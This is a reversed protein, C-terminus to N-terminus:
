RKAPGYAGRDFLINATQLTAIGNRTLADRLAAADPTDTLLPTLKGPLDHRFLKPTNGFPIMVVNGGSDMYSLEGERQMIARGATDPRSLVDSGFFCHEYRGGLVSLVTPIVDMQSCVQNVRRPAGVLKPNYLVFPVRNSAFNIPSEAYGGTHDAVFVFLTDDFWSAQKAKDMFRGIAADTYRIANRQDAFRQNVKGKEKLVTSGDPPIKFPRHFSLTIMSALFPKGERSMSDCQSLVETFLDDDCWGLETRFTKKDFEKEFVMRNFGNSNLFSQRHDYMPQGAYIFATQYSRNELVRGITMFNNNTEIRTTVSRGPLDPYACVIGSFGRTTRDGVAFCRDFSVGNDIIGSLNPTLADDGGLAGIYQWSLSELLVLVVNHKTEAKGTDTVRRLPNQPDNASVDGPRVILSAATELAEHTKLLPLDDALSDARITLSMAAENLTYLPNLTLQALTSSDSFYAPGPNIAKPGFSGRICLILIVTVVGAWVGRGVFSLDDGVKRFVMRGIAWAAAALVVLTALFAWVVPYNNWIVTYTYPQDLYVLAKHNLREDFERFFYFDAVAGFTAAALEAACLGGVVWRFWTRKMWAAPALATVVTPLITLYAATVLDFRIGVLFSWMLDSRSLEHLREPHGLMLWARQLVFLVVVAVFVGVPVVIRPNRLLLSPRPLRLRM